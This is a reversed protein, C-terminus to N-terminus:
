KELINIAKDLYETTDFTYSTVKDILDTYQNNINNILNYLVLYMDKLPTIIGNNKSILEAASKYDTSVVPIHLVKAENIVYPCAESLSTSVLLNASKLYPYPNEQAGLLMVTDKLNYKDIEALIKSLTEKRGSGIIYWKFQRCKGYKSIANAIQPIKEFQKIPDFRGISLINFTQNNLINENNINAKSSKNIYDINLINYTFDVKDKFQPFHNIFSSRTYNSVCIIKDIGKYSIKEIRKNKKDYYQYDCHVWALKKTHQFFNTVYTAMGEEYAIVKDFQYNKELSSIFRSMILKAINYNFSRDLARIIKIWINHANWFYHIIPPEEIINYNSFKTKYVGGDKLCLIYINFDNSNLMSLLFQLSRNTGGQTYTPILFLLNKM